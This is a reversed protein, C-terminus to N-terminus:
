TENNIQSSLLILQNISQNILKNIYITVTYLTDVIQWEVRNRVPEKGVSHYVNNYENAIMEIHHLYILEAKHSFRQM